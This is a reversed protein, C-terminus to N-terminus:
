AASTPSSSTRSTTPYTARVTDVLLADFDPRPSGTASSRTWRPWRTACFDRYRETEFHEDALRRYEALKDGYSRDSDAIDFYRRTDMDLRPQRGTVACFM